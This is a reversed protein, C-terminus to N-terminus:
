VLKKEGNKIHIIETMNMKIIKGQQYCNNRVRTSCKQDGQLLLDHSDYEFLGLMMFVELVV